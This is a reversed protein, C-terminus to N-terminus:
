HRVNKPNIKMENGESWDELIDLDTQLTEVYKLNLIKSYIRCDDAFLKIKSEINRWIDNVYSLFLLPALVSGQPVCSTVRVEESYYRGARVRQSRDILFERIRVVVRSDVGPAAIKKLLRDYSVLDFAKSFDRIIADLRAAEDLSDSINQCVTNIQSECSYGPRFGHPGEYLWDRNEWVQRVYGAIVNGNAQM